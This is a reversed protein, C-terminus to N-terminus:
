SDAQAEAAPPPLIGLYDEGTVHIVVFSSEEESWPSPMACDGLM